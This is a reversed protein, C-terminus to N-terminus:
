GSSNLTDRFFHKLIGACQNELVGNISALQHNLRPDRGVQYLSDIAGFKADKAGYVLLKIRAHVLAGACMLCPELTSYVIADTLRWRGLKNSAQEIALLEAHHLSSHKLERQNYAEAIVVDDIVM